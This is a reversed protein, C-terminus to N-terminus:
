CSTHSTSGSEWAAQNPGKPCYHCLPLLPTLLPPFLPKTQGATGLCCIADNDSGLGPNGVQWQTEERRPHMREQLALIVLRPQLLPQAVPAGPAKPSFTSGQPSPPSPRDSSRDLIVGPWLGLSRNGLVDSVPTKPQLARETWVLELIGSTILRTCGAFYIMRMRETRTQCMSVSHSAFGLENDYSM